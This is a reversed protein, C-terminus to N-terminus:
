ELHDYRQFLFDNYPYRKIHIAKVRNYILERLEDINTKERASIFIANEHLKAMWTRRLEDLSINERTPPLLDDDAQPTYTFADIKNFVVIEEPRNVVTQTKDKARYKRDSTNRNNDSWPDSEEVPHDKQL